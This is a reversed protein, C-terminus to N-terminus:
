RKGDKADKSIMTRIVRKVVHMTLVGRLCRFKAGETMMEELLEQGRKSIATVDKLDIVAGPAEDKSRAEAWVRELEALWPDVLQGELVLTTQTENHNVTIKLM